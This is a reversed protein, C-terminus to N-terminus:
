AAVLAASKLLTGTSSKIFYASDGVAVEPVFWISGPQAQAVTQADPQNTDNLLYIGITKDGRESGLALVRTGLSMKEITLNVM